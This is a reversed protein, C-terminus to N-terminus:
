YYKDKNPVLFSLEHKVYQFLILALGFQNAATDGRTSTAPALDVWLFIMTLGPSQTDSDDDECAGQM